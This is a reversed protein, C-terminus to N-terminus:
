PGNAAGARPPEIGVRAGGTTVARVDIRQQGAIIRAEGIREPWRARGAKTRPQATMPIMEARAALMSSTPQALIIHQHGPRLSRPLSRTSNLDHAACHV